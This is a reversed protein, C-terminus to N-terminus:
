RSGSKEPPSAAPFFPSARWGGKRPLPVPMDRDALAVRPSLGRRLLTPQLPRGEGQSDAWAGPMGGLGSFQASPWAKGHWPGSSRGMRSSHCAAAAHPQLSLAFGERGAPGCRWAASCGRWRM